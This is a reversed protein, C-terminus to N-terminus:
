SPSYEKAIADMYRSFIPLNAAENKKIKTNLEAWTISVEKSVDSLTPKHQPMKSKIKNYNDKIFYSYSSCPPTIHSYPSNSKKHKKYKKNLVDLSMTTVDSLMDIYDIDNKTAYIQFASIIVNIHEPHCRLLKDLNQM